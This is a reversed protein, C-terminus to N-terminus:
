PLLGGCGCHGPPEESATVDASAVAAVTPAAKCAAGARAALSPDGCGATAVPSLGPLAFLAAAGSMSALKRLKRHGATGAYALYYLRVGERKNM